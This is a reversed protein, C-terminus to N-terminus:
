PTVSLKRTTSVGEARLVIFYTGPAFRVGDDDKGDWTVAHKGADFRTNVLTRMRRGSVSFIDLEVAGPARLTFHFTAGAASPNPRPALLETASVAAATAQAVEGHGALSNPAVLHYPRMMDNEEHELIHCHWVYGPEATADFSYSPSEDQPAFRVLIRTVEGPHM